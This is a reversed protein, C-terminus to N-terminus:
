ESVSSKHIIEFWYFLLIHWLWRNAHKYFEGKDSLLVNCFQCELRKLARNAPLTLHKWWHKVRANKMRFDNKLLKKELSMYTSFAASVVNTRFIRVYFSSSISVQVIDLHCINAHRSTFSSSINMILFIDILKLFRTLL